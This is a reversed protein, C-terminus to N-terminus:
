RPEGSRDKSIRRVNRAADALGQHMIEHDLVARLCQEFAEVREVGELTTDIRALAADGLAECGDLFWKAGSVANGGCLADPGKPHPVKLQRESQTLWRNVLNSSPAAVVCSVDPGSYSRLTWQAADSDNDAYLVEIFRKQRRALHVFSQAMEPGHPRTVAMCGGASPLFHRLWVAPDPGLDSSGLRVTGEAAIMRRQRRSEQLPMIVRAYDPWNGQGRALSLAELCRAECELYNMGSLARSAQEM